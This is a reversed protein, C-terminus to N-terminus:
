WSPARDGIVRVIASSADRGRRVAISATTDFRIWRMDNRITLMSPAPHLYLGTVDLTDLAIVRALDGVERVRPERLAVPEEYNLAVDVRVPEAGPLVLSGGRVLIDVASRSNNPISEYADPDASQWSGESMANLASLIAIVNVARLKQKEPDDPMAGSEILVTSTGWQQMLDGFARPEHADNYKALRGPLENKLVSAIVSAVLRATSRAPGYSRDEDAAPALLAIAVQNGNNGTLTRANQDHLNFGFAPRISDRLSKLARAEPTSLNRADRNVDVGVANERQFLEAGDPNLMPIMVIKLNSALANRLAAHEPASSAFWAILDALSMTATSEDGHMQSWLLVTTPGTGFTVARIPRGQISRGVDGVSLGPARVFPDVAAWLETHTVRRSAIALVKHKAAIRKGEAACCRPTSETGATSRRASPTCAAILIAALVLKAPRM